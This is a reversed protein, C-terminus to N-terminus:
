YLAMDHQIAVLKQKWAMWALIPFLVNVCRNYNQEPFHRWKRHIQRLKLKISLLFYFWYIPLPVSHWKEVLTLFKFCHLFLRLLEFTRIENEFCNNMDMATHNKVQTCFYFIGITLYWYYMYYNTTVHKYSFSSICNFMEIFM